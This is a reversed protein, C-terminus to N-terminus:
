KRRTDLSLRGMNQRHFSCRLIHFMCKTRTIADASILISKKKNQTFQFWNWINRIISERTLEVVLLFRQSDGLKERIRVSSFSCHAQADALIFPVTSIEAPISLVTTYWHFRDENSAGLRPASEHPERANPSSTQMQLLCTYSGPASGIKYLWNRRPLSKRDYGDKRGLVGRAKAGRGTWRFWSARESTREDMALSVLWFRSRSLMFSAHSKRSFSCDNSSSLQIM